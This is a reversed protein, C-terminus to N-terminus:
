WISNCNYVGGCNNAGKWFIEKTKNLMNFMFCQKEYEYRNSINGLVGYKILFELLAEERTCKGYLIRVVFDFECCNNFEKIAEYPMKIMREVFFIEM